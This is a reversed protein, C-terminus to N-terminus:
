ASASKTSVNTEVHHQFETQVKPPINPSSELTDVPDKRM